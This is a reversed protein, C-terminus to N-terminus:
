TLIALREKAKEPVDIRFETTHAPSPIKGNLHCVIYELIM